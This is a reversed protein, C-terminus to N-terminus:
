FTLCIPWWPGGKIVFISHIEPHIHSLMCIEIDSFIRCPSRVLYTFNHTACAGPIGPVHRVHRSAHQSRWSTTEKWRPPPFFNWANDACACGAIEYIQYSAWPRNRTKGPGQRVVAIQRQRLFKLWHRRLKWHFSREWQSFNKRCRWTATTFCPGPFPNWNGDWHWCICSWHGPPQDGTPVVYNLKLRLM